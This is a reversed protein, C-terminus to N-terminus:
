ILSMSVGQKARELIMRVLSHTVQSLSLHEAQYIIHFLREEM